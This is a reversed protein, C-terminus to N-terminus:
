IDHKDQIYEYSFFVSKMFALIKWCSLNNLVLLILIYCELLMFEGFLLKYVNSKLVNFYDLLRLTKEVLCWSLNSIM